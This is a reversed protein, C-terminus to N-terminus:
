CIEFGRSFQLCSLSYFMQEVSQCTYHAISKWMKIILCFYNGECNDKLIVTIPPTILKLRKTISCLARRSDM